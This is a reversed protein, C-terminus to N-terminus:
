GELDAAVRGPRLVFTVREETEFQRVQREAADPDDAHYRRAMAAIDAHARGPDRDVEVVGRVSVWRYGDVVLVSARPDRLLNTPWRRGVKSNLVIAGDRVLYWAAAQHPSGDPNVSAVTAFRGPADLFSSVAPSLAEDATHETM